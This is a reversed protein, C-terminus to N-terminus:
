YDLENFIFENVVPIAIMHRNMAHRRLFRFKYDIM